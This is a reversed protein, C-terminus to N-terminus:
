FKIDVGFVYSSLTPYSNLSFEGPIIGRTGTTEGSPIGVEPDGKYYPAYTWLNTGSIYLKVEALPTKKLFESPVQYGVQLNKLRIFDGKQLFRTSSGNAENRLPNNATPDPLVNVDGPQKWYNWADARQNSTAGTGDSLLQQEVTNFIYNGAKYYLDANLFLGKFTMTTNIGGDIKAFPSKGNLFVENGSSQTTVNDDLDLFLAQGNAPNIGVYRPIYFTHVEEGVRLGTYYNSATFLDNEDVLKVVKNDYLSLSGGINWKFDENRVVDARLEIEFGSNEIEGINKTISGGGQTSTIPVDLLLNTTNRKYYEFVGSVRNNFLAFELGAGLTFNEEWGLNPDGFQNPASSNQGNYSGFGYLTKSPNLGIRDNGSTGASLRLKLLNVTTNLSSFFKENHINWGASAGWFIGYKTNAGFRSSGDRRVTGNLIYTENFVYDASAALSFLRNTSNNGAIRDATPRSGASITTPGNIVFGERGSTYSEYDNQQYESLLTLTFDHKENFTKAYTVKNLFSSTLSSSNFANATGTPKGYFLLDLASGAHLINRSIRQNYSGNLSFTYMLGEMLRMDANFSGVWRNDTDNNENARVQELSNLGQHTPNYTPMGRLDNIFDGNSDLKYVPEYANFTFRGVVPSQINNRDRPDQDNSTSFGLKTSLKLWERADYDINLRASTREFAKEILEIIGTDSDNAISLFYSLKDEGGTVSFNLSTIQSQKLLDESWDHDNALLENWKAQDTITSGVGVGIAREYELKEQANMVRFNRKIEEAVGVKSSFKFVANTNKKGTKSTILVVGNAGRAGYIATSAADKLVSLSSIDAPNIGIIDDEGVQVGDLLYLPENGANISGIGRIRVFAANGPKGNQAVVQVGTAVGQLANDISVTNNQRELQESSVSSISTSLSGRKKAGYGTIVIEELSQADEQMVIDFRNAAGVTKEVTAMGVFSFVLVKGPAAKISYNGDFDTQTGTKTGKILVTVGPLPGSADSVTGTVTKEQAFTIQVLLALLLTLIGNLKTKM